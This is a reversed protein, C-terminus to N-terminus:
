ILSGATGPFGSAPTETRGTVYAQGSTDVAIGQGGDTGSGGLYTSYVLTTGAPNLKTVFADQGGGGHTSQILSGATGPFSGTTTGTVYANGGADVAIGQGVDTGSGGLYTSYVLATGAANLKTVFADNLGGYTRQFLSGATVPFNPSATVGTVYAEGATDLAIGYGYDDVRGGLYTAWSLVPDIILRENADYSAIQFAVHPISRKSALLVYSGVLFHKNGHNDLQYVVPKHLRLTPVDGREAGTSSQLVTLVLDGHEDVEIQNVGDFALSIQTPDAGPAVILDYELQGQNGYYVLDVGPYVNTYAVKQYTPINTRWKSPDDGLIYNVIGPLKDLGVGEAQPDAGAFKMRVVSYATPPLSSSPTGQTADSERGEVKAEGTRVALVAESPTLFLQHGHGRALYNVQSDTQGQNAEFSIPLQGYASQIAATSPPSVAAKPLAAWLTAAPELSLVLGLIIGRLLGVAERRKMASGGDTQPTHNLRQLGILPLSVTIGQIPLVSLRILTKKVERARMLPGIRMWQQSPM